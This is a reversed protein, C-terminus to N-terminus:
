KYVAGIRESKGRAVMILGACNGLARRLRGSDRKWFGAGTNFMLEGLKAWYFLLASLEPNKKVFYMGNVVQWKGLVYNIEKRVPHSLHQVRADALVVLKYEKRVRYSYDLDELYGTGEFWEDFAYEDVVGRRWTTAGGSLWSVYKNEAVPGVSTSHGSRLVVGRKSSDLLFLSKFWTAKPFTDTIINFRAGGVDKAANEWFDLLAEMIGPELILDDDLFGAITMTPDLAKLGLNRQRALSPPYARIYQINLSPFKKVVEAVTEDGGDVIIIQSPLFTQAAVSALMRDLDKPHDKTPVVFAVKNTFGTMDTANSVLRTSPM